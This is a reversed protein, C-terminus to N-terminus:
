AREELAGWEEHTIPYPPIPQRLDAKFAVYSNQIFNFLRKIM